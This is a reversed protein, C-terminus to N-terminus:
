DTRFIKGALFSLSPHSNGVGVCGAIGGIGGMSCAIQPLAPLHVRKHRDIRPLSERHCFNLPRTRDLMDPHRRGAVPPVADQPDVPIVLRIRRNFTRHTVKKGAAPTFVRRHCRERDTDVRAAREVTVPLHGKAAAAAHRHGILATRFHGQKILHVVCQGVNRIIDGIEMGLEAPDIRQRVLGDVRNKVPNFPAPLIDAGIHGPADVVAAPPTFSFDFEIEIIIVFVWGDASGSGFVVEAAGIIELVLFGMLVLRECCRIGTHRLDQPRIAQVPRLHTEAQVAPM